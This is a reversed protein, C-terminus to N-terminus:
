EPQIEIIKVTAYRKTLKEAAASETEASVTEIREVWYPPNGCCGPQQVHYRIKWIKM